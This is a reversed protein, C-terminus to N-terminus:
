IVLIRAIGLIKKGNRVLLFYVGPLLAEREIRIKNSTIDEFTRVIKGDKSFLDITYNESLPNDFNVMTYESFPNPFVNASLSQASPISGAILGNEDTKVLMFDYIFSQGNFISSNGFFVVGGDSILDLSIAESVEKVFRAEWTIDGDSNVKSGYMDASEDKEGYAGGVLIDGNVTCAIDYGFDNYAGGYTRSWIENGDADTRVLFIDSIDENFQTGVLVFGNDPMIDLSFPIENLSTGLFNSRLSDGAETTQLILFDSRGLPGPFTEALVVFHNESTQVFSVGVQKGPGGYTKMWIVDGEENIQLLFIDEEQFSGMYGTILYGNNAVQRIHRGVSREVNGAYTRKWVVNGDLDTKVVFLSDPGNQILGGSLLYGDAVEIVSNGFQVLDIRIVKRWEENGLSDTKILINDRLDNEGEVDGLMLYGGDSTQLVDKALDINSHDYYRQFSVQSFLVQLHSCFFIIFSYQITKNFHM